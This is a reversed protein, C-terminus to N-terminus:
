LLPRAYQNFERIHQPQAPASRNIVIRETSVFPFIISAYVVKLLCIAARLWQKDSIFTIMDRAYGHRMKRKSISDFVSYYYLPEKMIGYKPHLRLYNRLFHQDECFRLKENFHATEVPAGDDTEMVTNRFMTPAFNCTHYGDFEQTIDAGTGQYTIIDTQSGFCLMATSVLSLESNEQLYAVQRHLREPHMLDGSDLMCIYPATCVEFIRQRTYGRGNNTENKLIIFRPDDSLSQLYHWTEDTSGDDCIICEWNTYTQRRISEISTKIYPMGNYVPLMINVKPYAM